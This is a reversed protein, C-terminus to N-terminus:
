VLILYNVQRLTLPFFIKDEKHVYVAKPFQFDSNFILVDNVKYHPYKKKKKKTCSM